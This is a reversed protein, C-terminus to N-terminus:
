IVKGLEFGNAVQRSVSRAVVQGDLEITTNVIIPQSGSGGNGNAMNFLTKQQQQNLIMEGSNVRATVNDGTFSTGGVIGGQAFKPPQSSAISSVNAAVAAAVIPTLIFALPPGVAWAKQVASIGDIVATALAAAKQIAFLEKSGSANASLIYNISDEAYKGRITGFLKEKLTIIKGAEEADKKQKELGKKKIDLLVLQHEEENKASQLRAQQRIAEEQGLMEVLISFDLDTQELEEAKKTIEIEKELLDNEENLKKVDEQFKILAAIKGDFEEKTNTIRALKSEKADTIIEEEAIQRAAKEVGLFKKLVEFREKQSQKLNDNQIVELTRRSIALDQQRKLLDDIFKQEDENIQTVAGGHSDVRTKDDKVGEAVLKKYGATGEAYKQLIFDTGDSIANNISEQTNKIKADNEILGDSFARLGTKTKEALKQISETIDHFPDAEQIGLFKTVALRATAFANVVDALIQILGSFPATAAFVAANVIRAFGGIVAIMTNLSASAIIIGDPIKLAVSTIFKSLGSNGDELAHQFGQIITTFGAIAGKVENNKSVLLGFNGTLTHIRRQLETISGSFTLNDKELAKFAIGGERSLSQLAKQFDESGIKGKSALRAIQNENVGMEQSLAKIAPVGEAQLQQLQRISLKGTSQVKTFIESLREFSGGTAESVEAVNKLAKAAEESNFGLALLRTAAQQISEFPVNTEDFLEQLEHFLISAQKTTLGFKKLKFESAEFQVGLNFAEYGLNAIAKIAATAANALINGLFSALTALTVSNFKDIVAGTDLFGKAMGKTAKGSAKQLSTLESTVGKLNNVFVNVAKEADSTNIKIHLEVDAM